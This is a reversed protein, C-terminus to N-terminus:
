GSVVGSTANIEAISISMTTSKGAGNPGLLGFIEGKEVAFSTESVAVSLKKNREFSKHLNSVVYPPM